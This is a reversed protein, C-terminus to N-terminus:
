AAQGVSKSQKGAGAILGLLAGYVIHGALSGVVATMGGMNSSFVGGGMMPMVILQALLWLIAGWILGKIVPAGPLIRFLLFTYILPFIITGNIFHMMMGMTWGGLMNGLMAAIDMKMMGMMPGIKYMMLTMTLTGVFGGLMSNEVNPKMNDEMAFYSDQFRLM